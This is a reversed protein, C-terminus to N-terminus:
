ALGHDKLWTDMTEIWLAHNVGFLPRDAQLFRQCLEDLDDERNALEEVVWWLNWAEALSWDSKNIQCNPLRYHFTPRAKIRPDDVVRNVRDSDIEAFMPLMDLARNRTPNEELYADILDATSHVHGAAVARLYSEPYLDIYPTLRRSLNVEHADVLWWQLLAFAKLYAEICEADLSAIESNVHVGFAAVPSNDTGKAGADRLGRVLPDLIDLQDIAIPPCVIEIPVLLTAASSLLELLPKDDADKRAERKLYDWDIEVAFEGFDSTVLTEAATESKITGSMTSLLVEVAKKLEIGTFELEFGVRRLKGNSKKLITPHKYEITIGTLWLNQLLRVFKKRKLSM